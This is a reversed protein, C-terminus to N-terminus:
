SDDFLVLLEDGGLRAVLTQEDAASRLRAAVDALLRDGVDHGLSDNVVKFRDLDVLALAIGEARRSALDALARELAEDFAWRNGLGTVQDTRAQEVLRREAEHRVFAQALIGAASRVT